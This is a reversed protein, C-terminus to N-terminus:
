NVNLDKLILQNPSILKLKKLETTLYEQVSLFEDNEKIVMIEEKSFRRLFLM